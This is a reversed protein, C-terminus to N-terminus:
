APARAWPGAPASDVQRVEITLRGIANMADRANVALNVLATEFQNIDADAFCSANQGHPELHIDVQVGMLPRVLDVVGQVQLAM